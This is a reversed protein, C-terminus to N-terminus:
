ASGSGSGSNPETPRMPPVPMHDRELESRWRVIQTPDIKWTVALGRVSRSGVTHPEITLHEHGLRKSLKAKTKPMDGVLLEAVAFLQVHTVIHKVGTESADLAEHLFKRYVDSIFVETDGFTHSKSGDYTRAAPRYGHFYGLDGRRFAEAVEEMATQTLHQLLQKPRNELTRRARAPDANRSLLYDAFSQLESQIQSVIADGSETAALLKQEQRPCVNFRRDNPEIRMSNPQNSSLIINLHNPVERLDQRMARLPLRPETIWTKLRAVLKAMAKVQDTDVEDVFLLLTKDVFSNFQEDLNSLNVIRCYDEGILPRLVQSFLLGKGTGTTGQLIWATQTRIRDRFIVALWNLFHEVVDADDGLTHNILRAITPPIMADERVRADKLYRSPMYRNIFSEDFDYLSDNAPDFVFDVSPIMEPPPQCHQQFLEKIRAKTGIVNFRHARDNPSIWGAYYQDNQQDRFALLMKGGDQESSELLDNRAAVDAQARTQAIDMRVEDARRRADLYYDPLIAEILYNPEGKFNYLIDPATIPHYYGWSDGGNLNLYVFDRAEKRGTLQAIDPNTAVPTGNYTRMSLSKPPLGAQERLGNIVSGERMRLQEDHEISEPLAARRHTGKVLRIREGHLANEVAPGLVPPAIYILKDNQCVSIDLPWRLSSNTRSLQFHESIDPHDLNWVRLVLKLDAPRWPRDLLFFIHYGNKGPVIGASASYQVIYDVEGLGLMAMLQQPELDHLLDNDLVLWETPEDSRTHGARSEAQLPRDLQGKLLCRGKEAQETLAAHFEEISEVDVTHSNIRSVMPYPQAALCGQDIDFRKTLPQSDAASLYHLKM